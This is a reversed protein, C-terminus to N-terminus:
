AKHEGRLGADFDRLGKEAICTAEMGQYLRNRFHLPNM